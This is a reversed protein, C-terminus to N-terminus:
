QGPQATPEPKGHIRRLLERAAFPRKHEPLEDFDREAFQEATLLEYDAITRVGRVAGPTCTTEVTTSPPPTPNQTTCNMGGGYTPQCSTTTQSNGVAWLARAFRSRGTEGTECSPDDSIVLPESVSVRRMYVMGSGITEEAVAVYEARRIAVMDFRPGTTRPNRPDVVSQRCIARVRGEGEHTISCAPKSLKAPPSNLGDRMHECGVLALVVAVLARTRM